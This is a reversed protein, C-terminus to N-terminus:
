RFYLKLNFFYVVFTCNEGNGQEGNEKEVKVDLNPNSDDKNEEMKKAEENQKQLKAKAAGIFAYYHRRTKLHAQALEEKDFSRNCLDCLFGTFSTLSKTSIARNPNYAPILNQLGTLDDDLELVPNESEMALSEELLPELDLEEEEEQVVVVAGDPGGDKSELTENLKRLHEPTLRHEVWEIRAPFEKNCINCTPHLYRKLRQHTETRFVVFIIIFFNIIFIFM